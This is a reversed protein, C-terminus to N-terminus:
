LTTAYDKLAQVIATKNAAADPGLNMVESIAKGRVSLFQMLKDSKAKDTSAMAEAKMSTAGEVMQQKMENLLTASGAADTSKQYADIKKEFAKATVVTASQSTKTKQQAQSMYAGGALMIAAALAIKLNM